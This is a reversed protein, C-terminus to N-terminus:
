SVGIHDLTRMKCMLVQAEERGRGRIERRQEALERPTSWGWSQLPTHCGLAWATDRSVVHAMGEGAAAGCESTSSASQTDWRQCSKGQNGLWHKCHSFWAEQQMHICLCCQGLGLNVLCTVQKSKNSTNSRLQFAGECIKKTPNCRHSNVVIRQELSKSSELYRNGDVHKKLSEYKKFM